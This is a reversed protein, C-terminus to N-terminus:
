GSTLVHSVYQGNEDVDVFVGQLWGSNYVSGPNICITDGLRAVGKCEHVHGHLGVVPRYRTIADRVATSGVPIEVPTGKDVVPRFDADIKQVTDLGTDYPPCHFNVMVPSGNAGALIRDIRRGLEEEDCERETNWPTPNTYGLSALATPGVPVLEGEPCDTRGPEELIPDIAFPDDNGPTIICRVEPALREAALARWGRVQATILDTFLEDRIGKDSMLREYEDADCVYPYFGSFAINSKVQELADADITMTEGNNVYEYRDRGVLRIPVIAKGAIDGGLILAQAKYVRAAALFKRFCRDSGHIDTAFFYRYSASLRRTKRKGLMLVAEGRLALERLAHDTGVNRKKLHM